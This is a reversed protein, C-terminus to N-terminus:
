GPLSSGHESFGAPQNYVEQWVHIRAKFFMKIVDMNNLIYKVNSPIVISRCSTRDWDLDSVIAGPFVGANSSQM